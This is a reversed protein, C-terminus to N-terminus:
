EYRLAEIPNLKSARQAPYIGFTLGILISISTALVISFPSIALDWSYGLYRAVLAILISIVAGIIIGILGGVLTIIVSEILFQSLIANNKAGVAKRLGIERTRETVSVLMINMIGVGGVILSIAAIAALFFKLADTVSLLVNLADQQSRITFDDNAPDTINHQERLTLTIDNVSQSVNNENDIKVRVLSNYNIGLLLKQATKQPIYVLNDQNQFGKTGRVPMVGIITFVVKKIKINQGLPDADGFLTNKVESGIVAVRSLSMNEEETFFRGSEVPADEVAPYFSNVGEFTGDMEEDRWLITSTGRNYGTVAVVHPVNNPNQLVFIDEDKLSTNVIGMVSPPPGKEESKGPFISILNSGVSKIQNVILSQAGAGVSMIIIVSAIGIIIGLMTLFTRSKKARLATLSIKFLSTFQM